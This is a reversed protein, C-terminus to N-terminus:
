QKEVLVIELEQGTTLILASLNQVRIICINLLKLNHITKICKRCEQMLFTDLKICNMDWWWFWVSYIDYNVNKLKMRRM